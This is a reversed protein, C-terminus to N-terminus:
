RLFFQMSDNSPLAGGAIQAVDDVNVILYKAWTEAVQSANWYLLRDVTVKVIGSIGGGVVLISALVFAASKFPFRGIWRLTM